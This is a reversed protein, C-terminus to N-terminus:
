LHSIWSPPQPPTCGYEYLGQQFECWWLVFINNLYAEVGFIFDLRGHQLSQVLLVVLNSDGDQTQQTRQNLTRHLDRRVLRSRPVFHLLLHRNLSWWRVLTNIDIPQQNYNNTFSTFFILRLTASMNSLLSIECYTFDSVMLNNFRINLLKAWVSWLLASIKPTTMFIM